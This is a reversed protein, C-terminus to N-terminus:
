FTWPLPITRNNPVKGWESGSQQLSLYKSLPDDRFMFPRMYINCVTCECCKGKKRAVCYMRDVDILPANVPSVLHDYNFHCIESNAVGRGERKERSGWRKVWLGVGKESWLFVNTVASPIYAWNPCYPLHRILVYMTTSRKIMVSIQKLSVLIWELSCWCTM